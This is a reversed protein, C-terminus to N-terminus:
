KDELEELPYKLKQAVGTVKLVDTPLMLGEEELDWMTLQIERLIKNVQRKKKPNMIIETM